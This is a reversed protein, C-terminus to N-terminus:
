GDVIALSECFAKRLETIQESTITKDELAKLIQLPKQDDRGPLTLDLHKELCKNFEFPDALTFENKRDRILQNIAAHENKEDDNDFMVGHYIGYTKFLSLFRHFNYKGLADVVLVREKALDHWDNALLYNFLAKETAGEVLIVKDAFFMSARDSDLWLQFRFREHQSAIEDELANDILQQARNKREQGIGPDNVYAKIVSLFDGGAKILDDVGSQTLQYIRSVGENKQIRCIQCLEDSSKSVFVPSHSSIIVQQESENGLRRLHYAMNEQQAPHLFAEPEEFLLLTFDPNFEKKKVEKEDQFSPAIRILEYILSRQFGHGFRDLDFATDGLMLDVFAYKVLSKSIEEPSIPNVSLDIKVNWQSLASNIPQSIETLFGDDLRAETNLADFAQGLQSYAPSKSVVKKLMFNLMNRLPSPGTTKMQESPTTLAPIYVVSGCKATGINKAGYFLDAEENGNVIAYINSQKAKVKKGKFYRKLIISKEQVGEKYKDALNNWEDESLKFSIEVWSDQDTTGKKPFDNDTWKTDEYFCRIANVVNSKGANNAGVLVLFDYVEIEADVISRFNHIKIKTIKM